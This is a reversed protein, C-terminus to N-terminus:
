NVFRLNNAQTSAIISTNEFAKGLTIPNSSNTAGETPTTHSTKALLRRRYLDKLITTKQDM